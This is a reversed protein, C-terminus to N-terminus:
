ERDKTSNKKGMDQVRKKVTETQRDTQRHRVTQGDTQTQSDIQLDTQIGQQERKMKRHTQRGTHNKRKRKRQRDTKSYLLQPGCFFNLQLAYSLTVSQPLDPQTPTPANAPNTIPM